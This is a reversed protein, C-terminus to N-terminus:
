EANRNVLLDNLKQYAPTLTGDINSIGADVFFQHRAKAKHRIKDVAKTVERLFEKDEIGNTSSNHEESEMLTWPVFYDPNGIRDIICLSPTLGEMKVEVKCEQYCGKCIYKKM